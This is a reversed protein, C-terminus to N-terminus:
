EIHLRGQFLSVFEALSNTFPSTIVISLLVISCKYKLSLHPFTSSLREFIMKKAVPLIAPSDGQLDAGCCVLELLLLVDVGERLLVSGADKRGGGPRGVGSPPCM